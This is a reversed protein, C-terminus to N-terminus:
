VYKLMQKLCLLLLSPQTFLPMVVFGQSGCILPSFSGVGLLQGKVEVCAGQCMIVRGYMCM